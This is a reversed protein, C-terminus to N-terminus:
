EKEDGEVRIIVKGGSSGKKLHEIAKDVEDFSFTADIVTKVKGEVMWDRLQDLDKQKNATAYTVFKSKVGGLFGPRAMSTTLSLFSKASIHGGVFVFNSGPLLFDNSTAYLNPPADGVNDVCHSFVQGRKQLESIVDSTKYDIVDDAGLSRCLDAKGTSCSVTVHCGLAKAIQVGWLGVGGSGGNLFVKDGAKVYPAITQYATLGATGVGATQTLDLSEPIVSVGEREVVVFEALSGPAKTPSARALVFDGEKADKIDDAVAVIRGSLDMGPIKPFSTILRSAMGLECVKYDAPNLAAHSVKILIHGPKLTPQPITKLSLTKSIPGPNAVQWAQMTSM